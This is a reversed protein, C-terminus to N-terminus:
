GRCSPPRARRGGGRPPLVASLEQHQEQRVARALVGRRCSVFIRLSARGSREGLSSRVRARPRAAKKEAQAARAAAPERCCRPNGGCCRV